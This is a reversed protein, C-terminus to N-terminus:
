QKFDVGYRSLIELGSKYSNFNIIDDTEMMIGFADELLTILTMHGVSDWLAVGEYELESVEDKTVNFAEMMVQQYKELNKM